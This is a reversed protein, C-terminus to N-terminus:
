VLAARVSAGLLLGACDKREGKKLFNPSPCAALHRQVTRDCRGSPEWDLLVSSLRGRIM